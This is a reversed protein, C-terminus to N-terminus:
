SPQAPEELCLRVGEYRAVKTDVLKRTTGYGLAEEAQFPSVTWCDGRRTVLLSDPPIKDVVVLAKYLTTLPTGDPADVRYMRLWSVTKVRVPKAGEVMAPFTDALALFWREISPYVVELNDAIAYLPSLSQYAELSALVALSALRFDEIPFPRTASLIAGVYEDVDARVKMKEKLYSIVVLAVKEIEEDILKGLPKEVVDGLGQSELFSRCFDPDGTIGPYYPDITSSLSACTPLSLPRFAKLTSILELGLRNDHARYEEYLHRDLGLLKGSKEVYEGQVVGLLLIALLERRALVGEARRLILGLLGAVSGDGEIYVAGPPPSAKVTPAIALLPQDIDKAKYNLADYGLLITPTAVVAPPRPSFSILPRVGQNVAVSVLASLSFAPAPRPYAYIRLYGAESAAQIVKQLHRAATELQRELQPGKELRIKL